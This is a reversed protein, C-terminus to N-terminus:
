GETFYRELARRVRSRARHLLVRQNTETLGLLNCVEAASWGEIDRLTIVERQAAPLTAVVGDLLARAEDSLLEEEPSAGWSRPPVKWHHPWRPHDAELFCGPDVAPEAATGVGDFLASFPVLRGDRKLRTRLRNLMIRCIWTRMSAREEFRDLGRLVGLWADQMADEVASTDSTYLRALRLMTPGHRELLSVFATEDGVRLRELLLREDTLPDRAIEPGHHRDGSMGDATLHPVM